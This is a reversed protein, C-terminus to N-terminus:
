SGERKSPLPASPKMRPAAGGGTLQAADFGTAVKLQEAAGILRQVLGEDSGGGGPVVAWEQITTKRDAGAIDDALPILQQLAMVERAQRGLSKYEAILRKLAAAEARGRETISAAEAAAEQQMKRCEAEWPQVVDADLQREVQLARERQREIDQEIKAVEARVRGKAEAIMAERKTEADKIRRETEQRAIALDAKVKALESAEWNGAKKEAADARARAEAVAAEKRIEAGRIRGVSSLYNADDTVNQIKFTDLVLGMKLMDHEAEDILKEAFAVKDQNVQEPTLQALVGRVNGELTERAVQAIEARSRGLFRECANALRPHEGPLKVHAIGHINLPIGGKSFAGRVEIEV